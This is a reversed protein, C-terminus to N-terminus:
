IICSDCREAKNKPLRERSFALFFRNLLKWIFKDIEDRTSLAQALIFGVYISSSPVFASDVKDKTTM